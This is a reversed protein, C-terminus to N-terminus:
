GGEPGDSSWHWSTANPHWATKEIDLGSVVVPLCDRKTRDLHALLKGDFHAVLPVAPQFKQRLHKVPPMALKWTVAELM